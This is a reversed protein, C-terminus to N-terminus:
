INNLAVYYLPVIVLVGLGWCLYWVVGIVRFYEWSAHASDIIAFQLLLNYGQTLTTLLLSLGLFITIALHYALVPAMEYIPEIMENLGEANIISGMNEVEYKVNGPSNHNKAFGFFGGFWKPRHYNFRTVVVGRAGRLRDEM